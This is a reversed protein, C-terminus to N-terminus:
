TCSAMAESFAPCSTFIFSVLAIPQEILHFFYNACGFKPFNLVKWFKKDAILSLFNKGKIKERRKREYLFFALSSGCNFLM